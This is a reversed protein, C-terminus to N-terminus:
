YNRHKTCSYTTDNVYNSSIEEETQEIKEGKEDLECQYTVEVQYTTYTAPKNCIECQESM